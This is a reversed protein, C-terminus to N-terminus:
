VNECKEIDKIRAITVSNDSQATMEAHIAIGKGKKRYIVASVKKYKIGNYTVPCEGLLANKIEDGTM